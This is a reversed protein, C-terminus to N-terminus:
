YLIDIQHSFILQGQLGLKLFFTKSYSNTKTLFCIYALEGHDINFM